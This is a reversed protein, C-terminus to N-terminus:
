LKGLQVNILPAPHIFQQPRFPSFTNRVVVTNVTSSFALDLGTNLSQTEIGIFDGARVQFQSNIRFLGNQLVNNARANVEDERVLCYLRNGITVTQFCRQNRPIERWVSFTISLSESGRPSRTLFAEWDTIRGSQTFTNM